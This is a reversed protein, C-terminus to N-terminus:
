PRGAPPDEIGLLGGLFGGLGGGGGAGAPPEEGGAAPAPPAPRPALGVLQTVTRPGYPDPIRREIRKMLDNLDGDDSASDLTSRVYAKALGADGAPSPAAPQAAPAPAAPSAPATSAREDPATTASRRDDPATTAPRAPPATVTVRADQRAAGADDDADLLGLAGVAVLAAGDLVLIAFILAEPRGQPILRRGPRHPARLAWAIALVLVVAGAVMAITETHSSLVDM